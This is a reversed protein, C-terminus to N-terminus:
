IEKWAVGRVCFCALVRDTLIEKMQNTSRNPLEELSSIYMKPGGSNEGQPEHDDQVLSQPPPVLAPARVHVKYQLARSCVM